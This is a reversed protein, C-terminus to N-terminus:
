KKTRQKIKTKSCFTSTVRRYFECVHNRTKSKHLPHSILHHTDSPANDHLVPDEWSLIRVCVARPPHQLRVASPAVSRGAANRRCLHVFMWVDRWGHVWVWFLRATDEQNQNEIKEYQVKKPSPCLATKKPQPKFHTEICVSIRYVTVSQM